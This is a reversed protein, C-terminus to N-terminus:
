QTRGNPPPACRPTSTRRPPATHPTSCRTARRSPWDTRAASSRRNRGAAGAPAGDRPHRRDAPLGERRLLRAGPARHRVPPERGTGRRQFPGAADRGGDGQGGARLRIGPHRTRPLDRRGAAHARLGSGGGRAAARRSGAHPPLAEPREQRQIAHPERLREGRRDPEGAPRTRRALPTGRAPRGDDARLRHGVAGDPGTRCPAGQRKDTSEDRERFRNRRM